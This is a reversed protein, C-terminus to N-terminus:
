TTLKVGNQLNLNIFKVASSETITINRITTKTDWWLQLKVHVEGFM